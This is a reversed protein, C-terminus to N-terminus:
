EVLRTERRRPEGRPPRLLTALLAQLTRVGAEGWGVVDAHDTPEGSVCATYNTIWGLCAAELGFSRAAVLEPFSSMTVADAGMSEAAWAEAATEYTPGSTWCLVGEELPVGAERSAERIGTSLRTSILPGASGHGAAPFPAAERRGAGSVRGLYPPRNLGSALRAPFSLVDTALMWTGPSLRRTLSGAAHTVIIRECRAAAALAVPAVLEEVGVGEYAHSRGAFLLVLAGSIRCPSVFGPHGAVAPERFGALREYPIRVSSDTREALGALGSGLIVAYSAAGRIARIEDPM